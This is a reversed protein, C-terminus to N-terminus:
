MAWTFRLSALYGLIVKLKQNQPRWRRLAHLHVLKRPAPSPVWPKRCPLSAEAWQTLRLNVGEKISFKKECLIDQNHNGERRRGVGM